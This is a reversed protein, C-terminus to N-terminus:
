PRRVHLEFYKNVWHRFLDTQSCGISEACQKFLGLENEPLRLAWMKRKAFSEAADLKFPVRETIHKAHHERIWHRVLETQECKSAAACKKLLALEDTPIRMAFMKPPQEAPKVFKKM